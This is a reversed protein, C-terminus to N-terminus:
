SHMKRLPVRARVRTRCRASVRDLNRRQRPQAAGAHQILGLGQTRITAEPDFRRRMSSRSSFSAIHGACRWAVKRVGSHKVANTVSEQLVRFLALAVENPLDEPVSDVSFAIQVGHQESLDECFQAAASEIGLLELGLSHLRHSVAHINRTLSAAQDYLRKCRVHEPSGSPLAHGLRHLQMAVGAGQQALDDHLESAIWNREAEQAEMLKRSLNSLAENALRLDTVDIVSGVYGAFTCDSVVIPVGSDLVSRYEGDHRRLRYEMKFPQRSDFAHTYTELCRTM